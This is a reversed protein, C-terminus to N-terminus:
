KIIVWHSEGTGLKIEYVNSGDANTEIYRTLVVPDFLKHGMERVCDLEYKALDYPLKNTM